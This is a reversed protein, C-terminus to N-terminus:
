CVCHIKIMSKQYWEYLIKDDLSVEVIYNPFSYFCSAEVIWSVKSNLISYVGECFLM